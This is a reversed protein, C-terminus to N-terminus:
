GGRLRNALGHRVPDGERNRAHDADAGPGLGSIAFGEFMSEQRLVSLLFLPHLGETQSAQLVLDKFYVGFRVHNFFEPAQLTEVDSMSALDLIQRSALIATRYLGLQLAQNLLRYTQVPDTAVSQRLSEFEDRAQSYLGLEWFATGRVVRTDSALDGLGSLNTEPPLNFTTKLWEEARAREVELDYGM